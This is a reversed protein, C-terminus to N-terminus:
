GRTSTKWIGSTYSNSATASSSGIDGASDQMRTVDLLKRMTGDPKSDDTDIDGEFGVIDKIMRATEIIEIDTGTGVNLHSIGRSYVADAEIEDLPSYSRVRWIM